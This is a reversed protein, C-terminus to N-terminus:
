RFKRRRKESSTSSSYYRFARKKAALYRTETDQSGYYIFAKRKTVQWAKRLPWLERQSLKRRRRNSIKLEDRWNLIVRRAAFLSPASPPTDFYNSQRISMGGGGGPMRRLREMYGPRLAPPIDSTMYTQGIKEGQRYRAWRATMPWELNKNIVM